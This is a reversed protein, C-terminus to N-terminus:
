ANSDSVHLPNLDKQNGWEQSQSNENARALEEATVSLHSESVRHNRLCQRLDVEARGSIRIGEARSTQCVIIRDQRSHGVEHGFPLIPSLSRVHQEVYTGIMIVGNGKRIM